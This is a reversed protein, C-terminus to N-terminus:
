WSKQCASKRLSKDRTSIGRLLVGEFFTAPPCTRGALYPRLSAKSFGYSPRSSGTVSNRPFVWHGSVLDKSNECKGAREM